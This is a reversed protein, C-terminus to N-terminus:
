TFKIAEPFHQSALGSSHLAKDVSCVASDAVVGFGKGGFTLPSSPPVAETALLTARECLQLTVHKKCLVLGRCFPRSNVIHM